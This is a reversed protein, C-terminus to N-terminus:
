HAHEVVEQLSAPTSSNMVLQACGFAAFLFIKLLTRFIM